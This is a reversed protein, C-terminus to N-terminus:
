SVRDLPYYYCVIMLVVYCFKLISLAFPFFVYLLQFYLNMMERDLHVSLLALRLVRWRPSSAYPSAFAVVSLVASSCFLLMESCFCFLLDSLSVSYLLCIVSLRFLAEFYIQIKLHRSHCPTRQCGHYGEHQSYYMKSM